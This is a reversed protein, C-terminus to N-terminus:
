FIEGRKRSEIQKLVSYVREAMRYFGLDNPHCNDVTCMDWDEVGLLTEGDIFYVNKDSNEKAKLYNNYIEEHEEKFKNENFKDNSVVKLSYLAKDTRYNKSETNKLEQKEKIYDLIFIKILAVIPVGLFMGLIGFYAGGITTASIVLIPSVKLSNGLIRPNLINADLQQVIIIILTM